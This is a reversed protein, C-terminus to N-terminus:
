AILVVHTRVKADLQGSLFYSSATGLELLDRIQFEIRGLNCHVIEILHPTRETVTPNVNITSRVPRCSCENVQTLMRLMDAGDAHRVHRRRFSLNREGEGSAHLM